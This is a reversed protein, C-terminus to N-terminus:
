WICELALLVTRLVKKYLDGYNHELFVGCLASVRIIRKMFQVNFIVFHCSSEQAFYTSTKHLHFLM